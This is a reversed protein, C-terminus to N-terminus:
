ALVKAEEANIIGIQVTPAGCYHTIGSHLFHRWIIPFSVNRITVQLSMAFTCAWPFTWGQHNGFVLSDFTAHCPSQIYKGSCSVYSPGKGYDSVCYFVPSAYIYWLYASERDMRNLYEIM